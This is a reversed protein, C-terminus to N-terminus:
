IKKLIETIEKKNPDTEDIEEESQDSEYNKEMLSIM